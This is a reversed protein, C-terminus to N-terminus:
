RPCEKSYPVDFGVYAPDSQANSILMCLKKLVGIKLSDCGPTELPAPECSLTVATPLEHDRLRCSRQSKRSIQKGNITPVM